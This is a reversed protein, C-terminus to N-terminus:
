EDVAIRVALAPDDFDLNAAVCGVQEVSCCVFGLYVFLLADYQSFQGLTYVRSDEASYYDKNQRTKRTRTELMASQRQGADVFYYVKRHKSKKGESREPTEPFSKGVVAFFMKQFDEAQHHDYAYCVANQGFEHLM